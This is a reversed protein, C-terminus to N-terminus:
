QEASRVRTQAWNTSVDHPVVYLLFERAVDARVRVKFKYPKRHKMTFLAPGDIATMRRRLTAADTFSDSRVLKRDRLYEVTFERTVPNFSAIVDIRASGARGDFWNPRKRILEIYYTFAVKRGGAVTSDVTEADSSGALRFSVDVAGNRVIAALDSIEAPNAHLTPALLLSFAVALFSVRM